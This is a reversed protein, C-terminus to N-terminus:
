PPRRSSRSKTDPFDGVAPNTEVISMTRRLLNIRRIRLATVESRRLGLIGASLIM